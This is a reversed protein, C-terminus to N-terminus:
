TVTHPRDGAKLTVTLSSPPDSDGAAAMTRRTGSVTAEKPNEAANRRSGLPEPTVSCDEIDALQLFFFVTTITAYCCQQGGVARMTKTDRGWNDEGVKPGGKENLETRRWTGFLFWRREHVAM